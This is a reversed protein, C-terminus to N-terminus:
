PYNYGRKQLAAAKVQLNWNCCSPHNKEHVGRCLCNPPKKLLESGLLLMAIGKCFKIDFIETVEAGAQATLFAVLQQFVDLLCGFPADLMFTNHLSNIAIGEVHQHFTGRACRFIGVIGNPIAKQKLQRLIQIVYLVFVGMLLEVKGEADDGRRVHVLGEFRQNGFGTQSAFAAGIQVAPCEAILKIVVLHELCLQALQIQRVPKSRGAMVLLEVDIHLRLHVGAGLLNYGPLHKHAPVIGAAGGDTGVDVKKLFKGVNIHHVAADKM